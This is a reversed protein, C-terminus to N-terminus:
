GRSWDHMEMLERAPLRTRAAADVVLWRVANKMKVPKLM